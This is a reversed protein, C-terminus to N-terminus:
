RRVLTGTSIAVAGPGPVVSIAGIRLSNTEVAMGWQYADTVHAKEWALPRRDM